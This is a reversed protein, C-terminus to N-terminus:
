TDECFSEGTKSCKFCVEGPIREWYEGWFHYKLESDKRRTVLCGNDKLWQERQIEYRASVSMVSAFIWTTALVAAVLGVGIAMKKRRLRRQHFFWVSAEAEGEMDEPTWSM